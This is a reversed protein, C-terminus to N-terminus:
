LADNLSAANRKAQKRFWATRQPFARKRAMERKRFWNDKLPQRKLTGGMPTPTNATPTNATPLSSPPNITPPTPSDGSAHTPSSTPPPASTPVAATPNNATPLTTPTQTTPPATPTKTTPPATPSFTSPHTPSSTTPSTSLPVSVRVWVQHSSTASGQSDCEAYNSSISWHYSSRYFPHEYFAGNSDASSTSSPLVGSHGSLATWGTNWNSPSNSRGHSGFVAVDRVYQNSTKFHITRSHESTRCYFRVDLVEDASTYGLARGLHWHSYGATLSTPLTTGDLAINTSVNRNYSYLLMWAGGDEVMDCYVSRDPLGSGAKAGITYVGSTYGLNMYETCTSPSIFTPSKTPLTPAVTLTANVQTPAITTPSSTASAADLFANMVSRFHNTNYSYGNDGSRGAWLLYYMRSAATGSVTTLAHFDSNTNSSAEQTWSSGPAIILHNISPDYSTVVKKYWGYYRPDVTSAGLAGWTATGGGNAGNNGDIKIGLIGSSPSHFMAMWVYSGSNTSKFTTYTVDGAASSSTNGQRYQLPGAYGSMGVAKVYISNGCNYMDYGGDNICTGSEGDIFNYLRPLSRMITPGSNAFLSVVHPIPDAETPSSTTPSSTPSTPVTTPSSTPSTPVTTPATTPSTPSSTPARSPGALRVWVQHSSNGGGGSDDCYANYSDIHWYGRNGAFPYYYFGGNNTWTTGAPLYAAHNSLATWQTSWHLPRNGNGFNGSVAASRIHHNSTKFHIIRSHRTTSCFFRVEVVIDTSTYGLAPGLHWHSYGNTLSTPLHSDYLPRYNTTVKRNYSYLLMWGGGDEEMDCYVSRDPLSSGPKPRITYIGSTKHGLYMYETCTTPVIATPSTTPSTPAATPSMTPSTPAATPSTTPSTPASTPTTTPSTPSTTPARTPGALRVWIQHRSSSGSSEYDDCKTSWSSIEWTGHEGFFPDREFGGYSKAYQTGAPLYGSHNSLATWETNWYVAKNGNGHSGSVAVERVHENPTKFHIVRDHRSQSCYFRVDLVEEASTYGLAPDLHWHSYGTTPSTPLSWGDLSRSTTLNRNYSYLLMWGGGDEEMDCYVSRDPLGSGAKASITYVGSTTYGLYMYEACSTPPVATPSATPSTPTATPSSTPSTPAATPVTTPSTPASSPARTPGSVRVWVTHSSNGERNYDDCYAADSYIGWAVNNGAFPEEDFARYGGGRTADAPLFASHGTLATWETNWHTPTNRNGHTGTVAVGLVHQNSTKFHIVRSHRSTSCYFRVDLVDDTSTYGLAPGLHWHSYGTTPSTPLHAHNLDKYYYSNTTNRNYSYLLMWGGGDEEMDCYVSRTPLGSGDKARLNYIGSTTYGLYMYEACTTPATITPSFTITPSTTPSTPSTTPSVTPSTPSATGDTVRLLANMVNRFHDSGYSYGRENAFGAWFLYYVRTAIPGDGKTLANNSNSSATQMWSAGPAIILYNISPSDPTSMSYYWGYYRSDVYSAGLPGRSYGYYYSDPHRRGEIKIGDIGSMHSDFVALFVYSGPTTSKYTTYKIDGAETAALSTNQRYFLPGAYTTMGTAKVFIANGGDYMDNGGNGIFTGSLGEEFDYLNSLGSMISPALSSFSSLLYPLSDAETPASSTPSVTPSTPVATPSNTPSTPTVTPTTTPSTPSPTSPILMSYLLRNPSGEHLSYLVNRTSSNLVEWKVEMPTATPNSQLFLAAVGAAHPSAMSTGSRTSTATDRVFDASLIDQGPAFLDVCTGHNTRYNVNDYRDSSGVTIATPERAPSNYCADWGNNGAPVTVTVGAAVLAASAEDLTVSAPGSLSITAVAPKVHNTETWDIGAVVAQTSGRGYCDLVRVSHVRADKAIGYDKGAATGAVHTGHGTCDNATYDDDVFDYGSQARSGASGNLYGFQEHTMRVGTDMVYINVGEGTSIYKYSYPSWYYQRSRSDIRDLGWPVNTTQTVMAAEFIQDREAYKIRTRHESLVSELESLTLRASFGTVATSYERQCTKNSSTLGSKCVRRIDELSVQSEDWVVIWDKEVDSSNAKNSSIGEVDMTHGTDASGEVVDPNGASSNAYQQGQKQESSSEKSAAEVEYDFIPPLGEQLVRGRTRASGADELSQAAYCQFRVRHHVGSCDKSGPMGPNDAACSAQLTLVLLFIGAWFQFSGMM